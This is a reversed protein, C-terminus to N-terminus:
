QTHRHFDLVERTVAAAMSGAPRDTAAEFRRMDLIRDLLARRAPDRAEAAVARAIAPHAAAFARLEDDPADGKRLRHVANAVRDCPWPAREDYVVEFKTPEIAPM